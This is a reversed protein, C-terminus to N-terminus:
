YDDDSTAYFCAQPISINRPQNVETLDAIVKLHNIKEPSTSTEILLTYRVMYSGDVALWYEGLNNIVTAGSEVGLGSLQFYFHNCLIGNMTEENVFQPNEIMFDMDFLDGMLDLMEKQDPEMSEFEYDEPDDSGMCRDNGVQWIYQVSDNAEPEEATMEFNKITLFSADQSGSYEQIFTVKSVDQQTPGIMEVEISMKYADLTSLGKNLTVPKGDPTIPQQIIESEPQQVVGPQEVQGPQQVESAPPETNEKGFSPLSCALSAFVMVLVIIILKKHKM